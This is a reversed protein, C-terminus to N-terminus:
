NVHVIYLSNIEFTQSLLRRSFHYHMITIYIKHKVLLAIKYYNKSIKIGYSNIESSLEYWM